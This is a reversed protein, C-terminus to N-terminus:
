HFSAAKEQVTAWNDTTYVVKVDKVSALNKLVLYGIVHPGARSYEYAARELKVNAAGLISEPANAGGLVYDTGANNDWYTQGLVTYRVAFRVTAGTPLDRSFFWSEYGNDAGSVYGAAVETWQGDGTTYAIAVQKEYALNKVEVSGVLRNCAVSGCLTQLRASVLRVNPEEARATGLSGLLLAFTLLAMRAPNLHKM